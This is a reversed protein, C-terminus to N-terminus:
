ARRRLGALGLLGTLLLAAPMPLPIVNLDDDDNGGITDDDVDTQGGGPNLSTSVFSNKPGGVFNAVDVLSNLTVSDGLFDTFTGTPAIAQSPISSWHALADAAAIPQPGNLLLGGYFVGDTSPSTDGSFGAGPLLADVIQNADTQCCDHDTGVLIGGGANALAFVENVTYGGMSGNIGPFDSTANFNISRVYLNGDFMLNKKGSSYHGKVADLDDSNFKETSSTADFVIVDYSNSGLHASLGGPTEGSVYTSSFTLGGDFTTLYDSMEQRLTDPAQGGWDPTSDWWLVNYPAATGVVPAFVALAAAALSTRLM